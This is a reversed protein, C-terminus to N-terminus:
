VHHNTTMRWDLDPDLSPKTVKESRWTSKLSKILVYIFRCLVLSLDCLRRSLLSWRAWTWHVYTHILVQKLAHLPKLLSESCVNFICTSSLRASAASKASTCFVLQSSPNRTIDLVSLNVHWCVNATWLDRFKQPTVHQTHFIHMVATGGATSGCLLYGRGTLLSARDSNNTMYVGGGWQAQKSM